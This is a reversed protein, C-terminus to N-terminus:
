YIKGKYQALSYYINNIEIEEKVWRQFDMCEDFCDDENTQYSPRKELSRWADCANEYFPAAIESRDAKWHSAKKASDVNQILSSFDWRKNPGSIGYRIAMTSRFMEKLDEKNAADIFPDENTEVMITIDVLTSIQKIADQQEICDNKTCAEDSKDCGNCSDCGISWLNSTKNVQLIDM